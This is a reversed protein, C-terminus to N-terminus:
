QTWVCKPFRISPQAERKSRRVPQAAATQNSDLKLSSAATVNGGGQSSAQGWAESQPFRLRLEQANEWTVVHPDDRSQIRPLSPYLSESPALAKKLQSVHIVPHILSTAPLALKYAM